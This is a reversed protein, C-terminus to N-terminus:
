KKQGQFKQRLRAIEDSINSPNDSPKTKVPIKYNGIFYQNAAPIERKSLKDQKDMDEVYVWPRPDKAVCAMCITGLIRHIADEGAADSGYIDMMREWLHDVDKKTAQGSHGVIHAFQFYGGSKSEERSSIFETFIRVAMDYTPMSMKKQATIIFDSKELLEPDIFFTRESHRLPM